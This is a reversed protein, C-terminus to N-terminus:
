RYPHMGIKKCLARVPRLNTIINWNKKLWTLEAEKHAFSEPTTKNYRCKTVLCKFEHEECGNEESIIIDNALLATLFVLKSSPYFDVVKGSFGCVNIYFGNEFDDSEALEYWHQPYFWIKKSMITDTLKDVSHKIMLPVGVKRTAKKLHVLSHCNNCLVEINDPHSTGGMSRYVFKHHETLVNYDDCGCRQCRKGALKLGM